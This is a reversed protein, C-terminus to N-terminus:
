YCALAHQLNFVHTNASSHDEKTNEMNFILKDAIPQTNNKHCTNASPM